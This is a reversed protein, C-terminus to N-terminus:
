LYLRIKIKFEPHQFVPKNVEFWWRWDIEEWHELLMPEGYNIKTEVYEM